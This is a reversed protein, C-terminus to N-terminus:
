EVWALQREVLIKEATEGPTMASTYLAVPQGGRLAFASTNGPGAPAPPRFWHPRLRAPPFVDV